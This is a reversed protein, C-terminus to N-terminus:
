RLLYQLLKYIQVILQSMKIKFKTLSKFSFFDDNSVSTSYNLCVYVTCWTFKM